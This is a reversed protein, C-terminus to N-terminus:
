VQGSRIEKQLMTWNIVGVIHDENEQYIYVEGRREKSLLLYVENLTATDSVGLIPHRTLTTADDCAQLELQIMEVQGMANRVLVSRGEARKLVELLLEDNDGVIIFRKDMLHRVGVKQLGLNVPA